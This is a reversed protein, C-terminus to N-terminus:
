KQQFGLVLVNLVLWDMPHTHIWVAHSQLSKLFGTRPPRKVKTGTYVQGSRTRSDHVPRVPLPSPRASRIFTVCRAM